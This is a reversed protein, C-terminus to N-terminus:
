LEASCQLYGGATADFDLGAGNGATLGSTVTVAIQYSEINTGASMATTDTSLELSRFRFDGAASVSFTPAARMPMPHRGYLEGGTTTRCYGSAPIPDGTGTRTQRWLYRQCLALEEGYSRYEFPTAISGVELQVGTLYLDNDVHSALNATGTAGRYAAAAWTSATGVISSGATMAFILLLGVGSTQLWTGTTDGTITVTHYQWTANTTQSFSFPYSRNAASNQVAGSCTVPFSLNTSDLRWWFSLTLTRAAAGGFGIRSCRLGEIPFTFTDYQGAAITGDATTVDIKLSNVFTANPVTTSQTATFVAATGSQNYRVGDLSYEGGGWAAISAGRQAVKMEGNTFLNRYSWNKAVSTWATGSDIISNGATAPNLSTVASTAAGVVLGGTTITSVGTGGNAVVLTGALSVAGSTAGAPTLGTTGGAFTTVGSVPATSSWTTGNSTLLNGSTGPAVVQVASTGNGLLVNNATLTAAGTGGRAVGLSTESNLTGDSGSTYIPGNTALSGLKKNTLSETGALTALTGTTPLTVATAATATLISDYAGSTTLSGGLTITKGTNAVGTGGYAGALTGTSSSFAALTTPNTAGDGIIITGDALVGTNAFAATGKGILVGGDTHSAAGTGGNAVPLTGSVASTLAIPKGEGATSDHSHGTTANMAAIISDYENNFDSALILAGSSITSARSSYGAM